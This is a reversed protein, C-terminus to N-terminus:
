FHTSVNLSKFMSNSIIKYYSLIISAFESAFSYTFSTDCTPFVVHLSSSYFGALSCTSSMDCTLVVIPLSPISSSIFFYSSSM